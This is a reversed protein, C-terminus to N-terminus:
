YLDYLYVEDNVQFQFCDHSGVSNCSLLQLYIECLFKAAVRGKAPLGRM